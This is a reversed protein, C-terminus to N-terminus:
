VAPWVLVGVVPAAAAGVEFMACVGWGVDRRITDGDMEGTPCLEGEGTALWVLGVTAGTVAVADGTTAGIAPEVDVGVTLGGVAAVGTAEGTLSDVPVGEKFTTIAGVFGGTVTAGLEPALWGDLAASGVTDGTVPTVGDVAGRLLGDLDGTLPAVIAGDRL